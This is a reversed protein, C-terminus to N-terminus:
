ALTSIEVQLYAHLMGRLQLMSIAITPSGSPEDLRDIRHQQSPGEIEVVFFTPLYRGFFCRVQPGWCGIAEHQQHVKDQPKEPETEFLSRGLFVANLRKRNDRTKGSVFVCNVNPVTKPPMIEPPRAIQLTRLNMHTSIPLPRISKTNTKTDNTKRQLRTPNSRLTARTKRPTSVLVPSRALVRYLSSVSEGTALRARPLIAASPTHRRRQLLKRSNFLGEQWVM